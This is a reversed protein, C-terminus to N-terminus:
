KSHFTPKAHLVLHSGDRVSDAVPDLAAAPVTVNLSMDLDTDRLTLFYLQNWRKLNLVQGEVWVAPMRAVYDAIKPALHRVPWPHDATTDLAKLPLARSTRAVDESM